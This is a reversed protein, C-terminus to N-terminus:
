KSTSAYEYQYYGYEGGTEFNYDHRSVRGWHPVAEVFKDYSM